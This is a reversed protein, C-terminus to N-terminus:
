QIDHGGKDRLVKISLKAEAEDLIAMLDCWDNYEDAHMKGDDWAELAHQLTIIQGETLEVAIKPEM